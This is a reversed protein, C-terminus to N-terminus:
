ARSFRDSVPIIASKKPQTKSGCGGFRDIISSGSQFGDSKQKGPLSGLGHAHPLVQKLLMVIEDPFNEVSGVLNGTGMNGLDAELAGHFGQRFSDVQLRGNRGHIQGAQRGDPPGADLAMKGGAVAQAFEACQFGGTDDGHGIGQPQHELAPLQHVPLRLLVLPGHAGNYPQIDFRNVFQDLGIM